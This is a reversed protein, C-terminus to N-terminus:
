KKRVPKVEHVIPTPFTKRFIQEWQSALIDLAISKCMALTVLGSPSRQKRETLSMRYLTRDRELTAPKFYVRKLGDFGTYIAFSPKSYYRPLALRPSLYFANQYIPLSANFSQLCISHVGLVIEEYSMLEDIKVPLDHTSMTLEIPNTEGRSLITLSGDLYSSTIEEVRFAALPGTLVSAVQVLRARGFVALERSFLYGVISRAEYSSQLQYTKGNANITEPPMMAYVLEHLILAARGFDNLDKKWYDFGYHIAKERRIALQVHNKDLVGISDDTPPQVSFDGFIDDALELVSSEDRVEKLKGKRTPKWTYSELAYLLNYAMLQDLNYVQSIKRSLLAVPADPVLQLAFRVRQEIFPIPEIEESLYPDDEVGSEVLDLVHIKGNEDIFGDGGNGVDKGSGPANLSLSLALGFTLYYPNLYSM